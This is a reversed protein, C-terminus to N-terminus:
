YLEQIKGRHKQDFIFQIRARINKEEGRDGLEEQTQVRLREYEEQNASGISQAGAIIAKTASLAMKTMIDVVEVNRANM